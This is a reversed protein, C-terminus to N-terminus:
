LPWPWQAWYRRVTSFMTRRRGPSRMPLVCPGAAQGHATGASHPAGRATALGRPPRPTGAAQSLCTMVWCWRTPAGPVSRPPSGQWCGRWSRSRGSWGTWCRPSSPRGRPPGWRGHTRPLPACPLPCPAPGGQGGARHLPARALAPPCAPRCPCAPGRSAAAPGPAPLRPGGVVAAGWRGGAAAGAGRQGAAGAVGRSGRARAGWRGGCQRCRRAPWSCGAARPSGPAAGLPVAGNVTHGTGRARSSGAVCSLPGAVWPLCAAPCRDGWPSSTAGSPSPETM